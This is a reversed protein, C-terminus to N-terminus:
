QGRSSRHSNSRRAVEDLGCAFRSALGEHSYNDLVFNYGRGALERRSNVPMRVMELMAEALAVRDDGPVVIGAGAESIANDPESCALVTPRHAYLYTFLKNLSVGYRYVPNDHTNAVLCDAERARAVVAGQPIRDEFSIRNASRLTRAFGMLEDKLPGSGVFRLKMPTDPLELCARDFAEMIGDLANATGHAGLYMFVFDPGPEYDPEPEEREGDFGNSVWLFKGRDVGHDSLYDDIHPLPAVVLDARRALGVSLREMGRALLGSPRMRGLHVLTDPWVDRIEYVFPVRHRQALRWGAWAGLLHVTSGVVVDPHKLGRTMGPAIALLAFVVMGLFRRLTNGGYAPARVWLVPIGGENTIRRLRRGPMGQTGRPHITSAVILSATWGYDPLYRAMNLHRGSGGDKSPILAHHNVIWVHKSM